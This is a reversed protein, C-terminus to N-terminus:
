NGSPSYSVPQTASPQIQDFLSPTPLGFVPNTSNDSSALVPQASTQPSSIQHTASAVPVIAGTEPTLFQPPVSETQSAYVIAAILFMCLTAALGGAFAPKTQLTEIFKSLWSLELWSAPTQSEGARIRAIVQSSFNHFYGPPPVEHRKLTLLRRLSEFNENESM